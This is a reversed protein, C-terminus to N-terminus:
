AMYALSTEISMGEVLGPGLPHAARMMVTYYASRLTSLEAWLTLFKRYSEKDEVPFDIEKEIEPWAENCAAMFIQPWEDVAASANGWSPPGVHALKRISVAVLRRVLLQAFDRGGKLGDTQYYFQRLFEDAMRISDWMTAVPCYTSPDSDSNNLAERGFQDVCDNLAQCIVLRSAEPRKNELEGQLRLETEEKDRMYPYPSSAENATWLAPHNSAMDDWLESDLLLLSKLHLHHARVIVEAFHANYHRIVSPPASVYVDVDGFVMFCAAGGIRDASADEPWGCARLIPVKREILEAFHVMQPRYSQDMFRGFVANAWVGRQGRLARAHNKAVELGFGLGAAPGDSFVSYHLLGGLIPHASSSVSGLGGSLTIEGTTPSYKFVQMGMAVCTLLLTISDVRMPAVTLDDPIRDGSEEKTAINGGVLCGSFALDQVLSVWCAQASSRHPRTKSAREVILKSAAYSQDDSTGDAQVTSNIGLSTYVSPHLAFLLTQYKVTFRFQRWHFQRTGGRTLSGTVIRDCKRIVYATSLLQQTLQASAILLAVAAVVLAALAATDSM